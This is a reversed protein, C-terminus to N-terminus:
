ATGQQIASALITGGGSITSSIRVRVYRLASPSIAVQTQTGGSFSSALITAITAWTGSYVPELPGWDATEVLVTGGSTTGVSRLYVTTLSLGSTDIPLSQGSTVGTVTGDSNETGLLLLRRPGTNM